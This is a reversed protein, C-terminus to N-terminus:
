LTGTYDQIKLDSMITKHSLRRKKDNKGDSCNFVYWCYRSHGHLGTMVYYLGFFLIEGSSKALLEESGPIYEM